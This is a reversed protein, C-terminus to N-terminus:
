KLQALPVDCRTAVEGVEVRQWHIEDSGTDGSENVSVTAVIPGVMHRVGMVIAASKVLVHVPEDICAM